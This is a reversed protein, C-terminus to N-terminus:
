LQPRKRCALKEDLVVTWRSMTLVANADALVPCHM